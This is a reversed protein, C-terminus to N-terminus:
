ETGTSSKCTIQEWWPLPTIVPYPIPYPVAREQEEKALVTYIMERLERMREVAKQLDEQECASFAAGAKDKVEDMKRLIEVLDEARIWM